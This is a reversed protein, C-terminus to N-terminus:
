LDRSCNKPRPEALSVRYDTESKELTRSLLQMLVHSERQNLTFKGGKSPLDINHM